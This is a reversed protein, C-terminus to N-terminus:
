ESHEPVDEEAPEMGQRLREQLLSVVVPVAIEAGMEVLGAFCAHRASRVRKRM